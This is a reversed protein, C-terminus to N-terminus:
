IRGEEVAHCAIRIGRIEQLAAAGKPTLKALRARRDTRDIVRRVLGKEELHDVLGTINARSTILMDGLESLQIGDPSGFLLLVMLNFSSRQLGYHSFKKYFFSQQVDCTLALNISAAIAWGDVPKKTSTLRELLTEYLAERRDALM